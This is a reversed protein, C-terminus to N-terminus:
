PEGTTAPWGVLRDLAAEGAIRDNEKLARAYGLLDQKLAMARPDDADVLEAHLGRAYQEVLGSVSWVAWGHLDDGHDVDEVALRLALANADPDMAEIAEPLTAASVLAEFVGRGAPTRFMAAHLLHGVHEPAHIAARLAERELANEPVARRRGGDGDDGDDRPRARPRRVAEGRRAREVAERLRDADIKLRGALEMVYQDRVLEAPHEAVIHVAREATAARGEASGMDAAALVRDLRFRLFPRPHELTALVGAPGDAWVDAPDRGAPLDAVQVRLEHASEWQYFREAAAQGAADADFALTVTRAFNKLQRVHDDTLATGCTAVARPAGALHFAMVDTYGECVIVEGANVIDRRAWNLGYLVKSKHYLVTEPTNKYKPNGGDLARGGFGIPEDRVDYIPFILRSRFHDQLRNASNVFALGAGEVDDRSFGKQQLQHSIRDWGDPAWGLKFHRAADGDFGRSRLYRRAQGAGADHLLLDHYLDLAVRNVEVLRDKRKRDVGVNQDDYRLSIGARAALREVTDVFDLGEIERVFTIADGSKQCGFCNFLGLQPNVYFSATREAHFPCLGSYRQGVRKLAVHESVLAVMDTAERVKAIDEDLIGMGAAM